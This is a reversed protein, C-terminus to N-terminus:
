ILTSLLVVGLCPLAVQWMTALGMIIGAVSQAIEQVGTLMKDIYVQFLLTVDQSLRSVLLGTPVLDFYSIDKELLSTYIAQRLDHMFAPNAYSRTAFNIPMIVNLCVGVIIIRNIVGNLESRTFSEKGIVSLMGGMAWQMMLPACGGVAAFFAALVLARRRRFYRMIQWFEKGTIKVEDADLSGHPKFFARPPM